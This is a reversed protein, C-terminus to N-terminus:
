PDDRSTVDNGIPMAVDPCGLLRAFCAAIAGRTLYCAGNRLANAAEV